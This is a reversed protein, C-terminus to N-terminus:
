RPARPTRRRSRRRRCSGPRGAGRSRCRGAAGRRRPLCGGPSRRRRGGPRVDLLVVRREGVGQGAEARTAHVARDTHHLGVHRGGAVRDSDAPRPVPAPGSSWRPCRSTRAACRRADGREHHRPVGAPRRQQDLGCHHVAGVVVDPGLGVLAATAVTGGPDARAADVGDPRGVGLDDGEAGPGVVRDGRREADNGGPDALPGTVRVSGSLTSLLLLRVAM